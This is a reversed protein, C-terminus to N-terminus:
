NEALLSLLCERWIEGKKKRREEKKKKTKRKENKTILYTIIQYILNL